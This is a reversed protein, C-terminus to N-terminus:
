TDLVRPQCDRFPQKLPWDALSCEYQVPKPEPAPTSWAIGASVIGCLVTAAALYLMIGLYPHIPLAIEYLADDHIDPM